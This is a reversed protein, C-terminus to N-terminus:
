WGDAVAEVVLRPDAAFERGAPLRGIVAVQRDIRLVGVGLRRVLWRARGTADILWRAELRRPGGPSRIDLQGCRAPADGTVRAPSGGIITAGATAAAGSLMADFGGRDVHWGHGLPHILYHAEIPAPGGWLSVIGPAALRPVRAFEDWLSLRDIWPLADPHLTDGRRHSAPM